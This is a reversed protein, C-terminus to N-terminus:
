NKLAGKAAALVEDYNPQDGLTPLYAVYALKGEKDVVFVSRRHIHREKILTGYAQGFANDMHDSVLMVKDVGAAACWSKLAYPLDTTVGIIVIDESLSAAEQNFRRTEADCVGTALSPMAAIIRVKGQTAELPQVISWDQAHASFSPAVQGVALDPGIITVDKGALQMVGTREM